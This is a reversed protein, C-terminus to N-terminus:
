QKPRPPRPPEVRPPVGRARHGPLHLRAATTTPTEDATHREADALRGQPGRDRLPDGSDTLSFPPQNM